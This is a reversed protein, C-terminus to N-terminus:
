FVVLFSTVLDCVRGVIKTNLLIAFIHPSVRVGQGTTPNVVECSRLYKSVPVGNEETYPVPTNAGSKRHFLPELIGCNIGSLEFSILFKKLGQVDRSFRPFTTDSASMKSSLCFIGCVRGMTFLMERGEFSLQLKEETICIPWTGLSTDEAATTWFIQLKPM